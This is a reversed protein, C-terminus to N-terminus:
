KDFRALGATEAALLARRSIVLSTELELVASKEALARREREEQPPRTAERASLEPLKLHRHRTRSTYIIHLQSSVTRDVDREGREVVLQVDADNVM